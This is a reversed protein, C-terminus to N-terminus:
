CLVQAFSTSFTYHCEALVQLGIFFNSSNFLSQNVQNTGSQGFLVNISTSGCDEGPPRLNGLSKESVLSGSSGDANSSSIAGFSDWISLLIHSTSFAFSEQALNSSQQFGRVKGGNNSSIQFAFNKQSFGSYMSAALTSAQLSNM